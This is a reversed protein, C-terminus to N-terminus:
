TLSKRMRVRMQARLTTNPTDSRTWLKGDSLTIQQLPRLSLVVYDVAVLNWVRDYRSEIKSKV